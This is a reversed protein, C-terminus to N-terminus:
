TTSEWEWCALQDLRIAERRAVRPHQCTAQSAGPKM